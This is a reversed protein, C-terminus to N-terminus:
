SAILAAFAAVVERRRLHLRLYMEFDFRIMRAFIFGRGEKALKHWCRLEICESEGLRAFICHSMFRPQDNFYESQHKRSSSWLNSIIKANAGVDDGRSSLAM